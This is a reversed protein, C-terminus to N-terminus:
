DPRPACRVGNGGCRKVDYLAADAAAFVMNPTDGGGTMAVGASAGIELLVDDWLIPAAIHALQRMITRQVTQASMRNPLVVAFEDGGIRAVIHADAFGRALRIAVQRLCADGAAHGWDDNIRKFGDVDFLILTAGGDEPREFNRDLFASQFGRRNALGTLADEDSLRRLAEWRRREDTIDQKTGYLSTVRGDRLTTGAVIRMWRRRHDAGVIEADLTFGRRNAVSDARLRELARRSEKTYMEVTAGREIPQGVPLAFLDYVEPTWTLRQTALDCEWAGIGSLAAARAHLSGLRHPAVEEVFAPPSAVPPAAYYSQQSVQGAAM